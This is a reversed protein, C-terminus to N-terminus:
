HPRQAFLICRWSRFSPSPAGMRGVLRVSVNSRLTSFSASLKGTFDSITKGMFRAFLSLAGGFGPIWYIFDRRAVKYLQFMVHDIVAFVILGLWTVQSLLAVAFTKGLTHAGHYVFLFFCTLVRGLSSDPM